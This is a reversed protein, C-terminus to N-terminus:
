FIFKLAFQIQRSDFGPFRTSQIRGFNQADTFVLADPISTTGNAAFGPANFTPHNLINFFESRFQVKLRETAQFNKFLSFDLRDVSPGSVQGNEGGFLEPTLGSVPICGSPNSSGPQCPQNFAQYNLFGDVGKTGHLPQGPVIFATCGFNSTGDACGVSIPQGGELTLIWNMAWGGLIQKEAGTANALFSKGPGFPLEYSGSLHFVNRIDQPADTWDGQIGFGPYTPARYNVLTSGFNLPGRADTRARSWTYTALFDLGASYRKELLTQLGHYNSNGETADYPNGTGIDPFPYIAAPTGGFNINQQNNDSPFVEQHRSTNGVYAAQASLTPTLAYQLTLNWGMMYPTQYNYQIGRLVSGPGAGAPTFNPCTFGSEFTYANACATGALSPSDVANIPTQDGFGGLTPFGYQFQYPYSEGLNPYYGRNEFGNYFMGFGARMVMKPTAQYALGIRPAFNTKQSVGLSLNNLYTIAIGDKAAAALFPGSLTYNPNSKDITPLLLEAGDGPAGPVFNDQGGHHEFIQGFHEWRLGLNVTLKPSVKWDDEFYGAWYNNGDDTVSVNSVVVGDAGGVYNPGGVTSPIPTLLFQAWGANDSNGSNPIRTYNGDFSWQGHSYPPQLTSIKLRQYEIGMKFTHKGYIKTFNDTVQTTQSVEDSPLFNNSGITSLGNFTFAPLGGNDTFQPIGAIGYQAPIGMQTAVPGTRSTGLRNVGIRAENITTPSVTHTWSLAPLITNATQVGDVFSGGDVIGGFPGAIYQPYDVYSFAAFIQDKEGKNFDMRIDFANREQSSLPNTANNGSIGATTPTPFLNLIKVANQDIRGSPLHNLLAAWQATTFNTVGTIVQPTAFIPDRVFGTATAPLNTVPDVTGKTVARTTAPDFITGWPFTRGLDDTHTGKGSQLTILDSLDSYQSNREDMTPVSNAGYVTGQRVRLGEYDGFFFVKNKMIPGGLTAGFQNQQYRGKPIGGSDEFFDAADLHDNRIYEWADGHLSNTGSKITANLIAGGARGFQASYDDTLVKFEQVADLPPLVAFNTGNLFDVANSNNDIGNLLYNNQGPRLGNASFAGSNANGRTDAEPTNVGASVQALFTFNRGNLPLDNVDRSSIVQGVSANQTQLPPPAATVEVTQTVTGPKLILDVVLQQQLELTVHSQVARAFGPAEASVEYTGIKVPSFIYSGDGGATMTIALNTGENKLTVQAKPIVAGTQDKITGQISGTDAQAHLQVSTLMFVGPVALALFLNRLSFGLRRM